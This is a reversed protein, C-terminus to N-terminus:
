ISRSQLHLKSYQLINYGDMAAPLESLEIMSYRELQDVFTKKPRVSKAKGHKPTWLLLDSALETRARWCHGSFRLRQSKISNSLKPINGYLEKNTPHSKWSINLAVRLMRMYNGDLRKGMATAM